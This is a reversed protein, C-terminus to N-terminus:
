KKKAYIITYSPGPRKSKLFLTVILMGLLMGVITCLITHLINSFTLIFRKYKVREDEINDVTTRGYFTISLMAGFCLGSLFVITKEKRTLPSRPHPCFLGYWLYMEKFCRKIHALVIYRTNKLQDQRALRIDHETSTGYIRSFWKNVLFIFEERRVTDKVRVMRCYWSPHRGTYDNSLSISELQGLHDYTTLAFTAESNRRFIEHFKRCSAVIPESQLESGNLQVTINATTGAFPYNGTLITVLYLYKKCPDSKQPYLVEPETQKKYDRHAAWVLFAILILLLLTFALLFIINAEVSKLIDRPLNISNPTKFVLAAFDTFHKCKCHIHTSNTDTGVQCYDTTWREESPSWNNCSHISSRFHFNINESSPSSNPLIAMYGITDANQQNLHGIFYRGTSTSVLESKSVVERYKPFSGLKVFVRIADTTTLFQITLYSNGPIKAEYIPMDGEPKVFGYTDVTELQEAVKKLGFFIDFKSRISTVTYNTSQYKESFVNVSIFQTSIQYQRPYWWYPNENSMVTQIGVKSNEVDSDMLEGLVSLPVSVLNAGNTLDAVTTYEPGVVSLNWFVQDTKFDMPEEGPETIHFAGRGLKHFLNRTSAAFEKWNNIRYIIAFDFDAYDPYNENYFDQPEPLQPNQIPPFEETPIFFKEAAQVFAQNMEKYREPQFDFVDKTAEADELGRSVAKFALGTKRALTDKATANQLVYNLIFSLKEISVITMLDAKGLASVLHETLNHRGIEDPIQKIKKTLIRVAAVATTLDGSEVFGELSPGDSSDHIYDNISEITVEMQFPELSVSLELQVFSDIADSVVLKLKAFNSNDSSSLRLKMNSNTQSLLLQSGQFLTYTLPEYDSIFDMCSITFEESFEKGSKPDVSCSGMRLSSTLDINFIIFGKQVKTEAELKITAQGTGPALTSANTILRIGLGLTKAEPAILFWRFQPKRTFCNQCRAKIHIRKQTNAVRNFCNRVCKYSVLLPQEHAPTIEQWITASLSTRSAIIKLTFNYKRNLVLNNAPIIVKKGRGMNKKCFKDNSPITTCSWQYKLNTGAKPSSMDRSRSGDVIVGEQVNIIRFNGYTIVAIPSAMVVMIYCRAIAIGSRGSYKENEEVRIKLIYMLHFLTKEDNFWLTHPPIRLIRNNETEFSYRTESFTSKM